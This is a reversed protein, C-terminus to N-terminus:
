VAVDSGLYEEPVTSASTTSKDRGESAPTSEIRMVDKAARLSPLVARVIEHCEASRM